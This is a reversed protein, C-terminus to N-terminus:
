LTRGVHPFPVAQEGQATAAATVEAAAINMAPQFESSALQMDADPVRGATFRYVVAILLPLVSAVSFMASFGFRDITWGLVPSALMVGVETFGLVITTGTGRYERPFAGAGLSVVAPFLLAHGMGCTIASPLYQWGQTVFPLLGHGIAHGVLGILIMRHRGMTYSWHRTYIRFLFAAVAYGTFFTGIGPLGRATSFRTLFVTTVSLSVGIMAAVLVVSGPWYRLLLHHAPPTEHPPSHQAGRTLVVVISFYILGLLGAGGFLVVFCTAPDNVVRLILDGILAGTVMGVFGSSGLNGIVETRRYAPVHNQIHVISCTFMFALGSSFCMRAVYLGPGLADSWVFGACGCGYLGAGIKWLRSTGFRDIGQGLFFRAVLAGLMGMSVISGALQETGGLYAVFEAFRFTMANATVLFVNATYALWFVRDYVPPSVDPSHKKLPPAALCTATDM